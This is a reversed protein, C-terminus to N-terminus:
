QLRVSVTQHQHLGAQALNVEHVRVADQSRRPDRSGLRNEGLVLCGQALYLPQAECRLVDSVDEQAVQVDVVAAAQRVEGVGLDVHQSGFDVRSEGLHRTGSVPRGVPSVARLPHSIRRLVVVPPEAEASLLRLAQGLRDEHDREATVGLAVGAHRDAGTVSPDQV